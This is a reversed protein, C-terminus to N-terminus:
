IRVLRVECSERRNVKYQTIQEIYFFEGFYEIYVPRTYDLNEIDERNLLMLATVIKTRDLISRLARYNNALARGFNLASENVEFNIQNADILIDLSAEAESLIAVRPAFDALVLDEKLLYDFGDFTYKDGTFVKGMIRTSAFTARVPVPAFKSTFVPRESDLNEDAVLLHGEASGPELYPDKDDGAM